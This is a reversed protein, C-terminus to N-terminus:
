CYPACTNQECSIGCTHANTCFRTCGREQTCFETELTDDHARVTGRNEAADGTAYSEVRLTDLDLTLKPM